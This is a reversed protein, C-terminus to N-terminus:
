YMGKTERDWVRLGYEVEKDSYGSSELYRGVSERAPDSKKSEDVGSDQWNCLVIFGIIIAAIIAIKRVTEM